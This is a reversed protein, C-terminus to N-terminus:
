SSVSCSDLGQKGACLMHEMIGGPAATGYTEKCETNDWIKATM